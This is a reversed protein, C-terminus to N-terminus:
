WNLKEYYTNTTHGGTYEECVKYISHCVPCEVIAFRTFGESKIPEKITFGFSDVISQPSSGFSTFALECLCAENKSEDIIHIANRVFRSNPLIAGGYSLEETLQNIKDIHPILSEILPRNTIVSQIIIHSASLIKDPDKSYFADLIKKTETQNTTRLNSM